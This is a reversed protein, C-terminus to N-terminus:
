FLMGLIIRTIVHGRDVVGGGNTVAPSIAEFTSL